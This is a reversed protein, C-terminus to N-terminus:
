RPDLSILYAAVDQAEGENLPMAPMTTGPLVAPANRVFQALTGNDAALRGAILAQADFDHLSPGVRGQPLDIGPIAHCSACGVRKMVALGREPDASDLQPAREPLGGCGALALASSGLAIFRWLPSAVRRPAPLETRTGRFRLM